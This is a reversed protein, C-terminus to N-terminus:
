YKLGSLGSSYHLINYSKAYIQVETVNSEPDASVGEEASFPDSYDLKIRCRQDIIRSFNLHGSPTNDLPYLAFSYSGIQDRTELQYRVYSPSGNVNSYVVDGDVITLGDFSVDVNVGSISNTLANEHVMKSFPEKFLSTNNLIMELEKFKTNLMYQLLTENGHYAFRRSKKTAIFYITKVPHHFRLAIEDEEKTRPIDHRKLQIQTILQNIPTSKLYSLEDRDLYAYTALLSATEIKAETV